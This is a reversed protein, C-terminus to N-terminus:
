FGSPATDCLEPVRHHFLYRSGALFQSRVQKGLDHAIAKVAPVCSPPFDYFLGMFHRIAIHALVPKRTAPKQASKAKAAKGDALSRSRSTQIKTPTVQGTAMAPM